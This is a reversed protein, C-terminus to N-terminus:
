LLRQAALTTNIARRRRQSRQQSMPAGAACAGSRLGKHPKQKLAAFRRRKALLDIKIFLEIIVFRCRLGALENQIVKDIYFQIASHKTSKSIM